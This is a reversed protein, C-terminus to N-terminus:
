RGHRVEAQGLQLLHGPTVTCGALDVSLAAGDGSASPAATWAPGTLRLLVPRPDGQSSIGASADVGSLVVAEAHSGAPLWLSLPKADAGAPEDFPAGDLAFTEILPAAQRTAAAPGPAQFSSNTSSFARQRRGSPMTRWSPSASGPFKRMRRTRPLEM